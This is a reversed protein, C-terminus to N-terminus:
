RRISEIITEKGKEHARPLAMSGLRSRSRSSNLFRARDVGATSFRGAGEASEEAALFFFAFTSCPPEEPELCFM